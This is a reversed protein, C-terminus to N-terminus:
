IWPRDAHHCAGGSGDEQFVKLVEIGDMDEMQRDLVAAEFTERRLTQIAEAGSM